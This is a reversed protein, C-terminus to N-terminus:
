QTIIQKLLASLEEAKDMVMVHEGKDICYDAKVYRFPLLKDAKGHIHIINSPVTENKWNIIAGMAWKTFTPNSSKIIERQLKQQQEGKSGLINLILKGSRKMSKESFYKYVPFRRWFRLYGPIEKYTKCSAILIVNTNPHHKAIETALMGGFSLGVITAHEDNICTFLRRAYSALSENLEPTLWNIFVPECFSLDLFNFARSDAGLGSIFYVKMKLYSISLPYHSVNFM